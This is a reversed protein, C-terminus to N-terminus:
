RTPRTLQIMSSLRRVSQIMWFDAYEVTLTDGDRTTYRVAPHDPDPVFVGEVRIGNRQLNWDSWWVLASAGLCALSTVPEEHKGRAAM